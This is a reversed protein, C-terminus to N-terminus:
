KAIPPLQKIHKPNVVIESEKRAEFYALVEAKPCFGHVVLPSHKDNMGTRRPGGAYHSFWIAKERNVTWSMGHVGAPHGCGRWIEITDPMAALAAREADNM